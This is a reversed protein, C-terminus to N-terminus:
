SIFFIQGRYFINMVVFILVSCVNDPGGGGGGGGGRGGQCIKRFGGVVFLYVSVVFHDSM